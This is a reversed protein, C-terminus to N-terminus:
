QHSYPYGGWTPPSHRPTTCTVPLLGSGVGRLHPICFRNGQSTTPNLVLGVYTPVVPHGRASTAAQRVLGVYTPFVECTSCPCANESFWGWTPPSCPTPATESMTTESGVGRLHPVCRVQHRQDERCPVLGVYTPFVEYNPFHDSAALFWGWTPPSCGDDAGLFQRRISGVGRLHPVCM